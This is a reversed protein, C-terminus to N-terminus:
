TEKPQHDSQLHDHYRWACGTPGGVDYWDCFECVIRDSDSDYEGRVTGAPWAPDDPYVLAM